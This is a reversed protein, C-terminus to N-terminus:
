LTHSGIYRQLFIQEPIWGTLLGLDTGSNSGPFDYGGRVKLYAKELLAPWILQPNNRDIVHLLRTTRSCPLRDDIVVRRFCGNFYLKFIYRGSASLLPVQKSQDYPFIISCLLKSVSNPQLTLSISQPM